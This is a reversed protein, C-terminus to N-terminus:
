WSRKGALFAEPGKKKLIRLNKLHGDAHVAQLFSLKGCDEFEDCEWCGGYGKTQCCIRIRCNPAGGGNRCGRRCRFRVMTGLVDYAKDYAQFADALGTEALADAFKKYKAARLEKRLDRALDPIIGKFSQCDGCYLGCYAILNADPSANPM